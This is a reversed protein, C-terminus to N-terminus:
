RRLWRPAGALAARLTAQGSAVTAQSKEAVMRADEGQTVNWTGAMGALRLVIVRQARKVRQAALHLRQRLAVSRGGGPCGIRAPHKYHITGSMPDAM